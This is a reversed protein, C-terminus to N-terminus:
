VHISLGQWDRIVSVTLFSCKGLIGWLCFTLPGFFSMDTKWVQNVVAQCMGPLNCKLKIVFCFLCIKTWVLVKPLHSRGRSARQRERRRKPLCSVGRCYLLDGEGAGLFTSPYRTRGQHQLGPRESINQIIWSVEVYERKQMIKWINWSNLSANSYVDLTCLSTM